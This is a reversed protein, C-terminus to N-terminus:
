GILREAKCFRFGKLEPRLYEVQEILVIWVRRSHVGVQVRSSVTGDPEPNRPDRSSYYLQACLQFESDGDRNSRHFQWPYPELLFLVCPYLRSEGSSRISRTHSCSGGMKRMSESWNCRRRGCRMAPLSDM